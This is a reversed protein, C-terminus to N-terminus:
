KRKLYFFRAIYGALIIMAYNLFGSLSHDTFFIWRPNYGYILPVIVVYVLSDMLLSAIIWFLILLSTEKFSEEPNCKTRKLYLYFFVGFIAPILALLIIRMITINIVYAALSIACGIIYALLFYILSFKASKM